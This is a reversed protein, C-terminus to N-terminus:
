SIRGATDIKYDKYEEKIRFGETIDNGRLEIYQFMSVRQAGPMYYYGMYGNEIALYVLMGEWQMEDCERYVRNIEHIGRGYVM